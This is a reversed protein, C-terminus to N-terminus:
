LPMEAQLTKGSEAHVDNASSFFFCTEFNELKEQNLNFSEILSNGTSNGGEVREHLSPEAVFHFRTFTPGAFRHRCCLMPPAFQYLNQKALTIPEFSMPSQSGRRMEFIDKYTQQWHTITKSLVNPKVDVTRKEIILKVCFVSQSHQM